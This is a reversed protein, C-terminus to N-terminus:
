LLVILKISKLLSISLIKDDSGDQSKTNEEMEGVREGYVQYLYGNSVPILSEVRHEMSFINEGSKM